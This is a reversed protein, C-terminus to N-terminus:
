SVRNCESTLDSAKCKKRREALLANNPWYHFKYIRMNASISLYNTTIFKKLLNTNYRMSLLVQNNKAVVGVVLAVVGVVAIVVV